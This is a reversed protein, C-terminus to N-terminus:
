SDNKVLNSLRSVPPRGQIAMHPRRTNYWQMYLQLQRDCEDSNRYPKKYAWERM